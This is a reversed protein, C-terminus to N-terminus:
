KKLYVSLNAQQLTRLEICANVQDKANKLVRATGPLNQAAFFQQADDRLKADCFVGAAQALGGGLSAGVKALLDKFRNKFLEWAAQQTAENDLAGAVFFIDQNRVEPGLFLDFTRKTLAPDPFLALSGLYSYYEDPTKATKMHELYQNYLAADGNRAAIGISVGSLSSDVSSPDKIYAAAMERSKAILAPDKGYTALTGFVDARFARREDSEGAVPTTGLESMLPQLFNRVWAEFAPRDQASVVTDHMELMHGIMVGVIARNREGRLKELSNLYDGIKSRGVRVMAWADGLYSIREEPSFSTELEGAMKALAAPEYSARYYGRGGANAFVWPSCGKLEFTDQKKTLLM